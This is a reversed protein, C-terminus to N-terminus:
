IVPLFEPRYGIEAAPDEGEDKGFESVLRCAHCQFKVESNESDPPRVWSGNCGPCPRQIELAGAFSYHRILWYYVPRGMAEELERAMERGSQATPSLPDALERWVEMELVGSFWLRYLRDMNRAHFILREKREQDMPVTYLPISRGTAGDLLLLGPEASNVADVYLWPSDQWHPPAEDESGILSWVPGVGFWKLLEGFNRETDRSSHEAGWAGAEFVSVFATFNGDIISLIEEGIVQGNRRLSEIYEYIGSRQELRDAEDKALPGFNVSCVPGHTIM